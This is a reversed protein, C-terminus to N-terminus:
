ELYYRKLEEELDKELKYDMVFQQYEQPNPFYGTIFNEDKLTGARKEIWELYNSFAWQEPKAVLGAELPNLHIYRCLHLIYDDRDVRVHKFRGEFLTGTRNRQKNLAQVYANFLANIFASLPQESEQRLLFHYHNPMLCYAIVTVMYKETYKKVLKLCYLYNDRTFFINQRNAGRNYIHYYQGKEFEGRRYPM